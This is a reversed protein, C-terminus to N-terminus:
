LPSLASSLPRHNQLTCNYTVKLVAGQVWCHFVCPICPIGSFGWIGSPTEPYLHRRALPALSLTYFLPFLPSSQLPAPQFSSQLSGTHSSSPCLSPLSPPSLPVYPLSSSLILSAPLFRPIFLSITSLPPSPLHDRRALVRTPRESEKM